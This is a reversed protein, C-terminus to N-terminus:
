RVAPSVVAFNGECDPFKGSFVPFEVCNDFIYLRRGMMLGRERLGRKIRKWCKIRMGRLIVFVECSPPIWSKM